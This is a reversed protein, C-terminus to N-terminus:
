VRGVVQRRARLVGELVAWVNEAVIRHGRANPHIGDALNLTPERAVGELLFPILAADNEEALERYMGEFRAVYARGLNPPALMGAIVVRVDPYATRVADIIGQLNARTAGLDQGRLMDNAGLELVLVDIPQELYWEVRRLGGASTEGSQGADVVRWPLRASDIKAQILAPFASDQAVGWGATLSNGLFLVTGRADSPEGDPSTEPPRSARTEAPARDSRPEDGACALTALTALTALLLTAPRLTLRPRRGPAVAGRRGALRRASAEPSPQIPM